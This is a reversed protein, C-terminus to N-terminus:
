LASIREGLRKAEADAEAHLEALDLDLVQGNEYVTRGRSVVRLVRAAPDLLHSTPELVAFDADEGLELRGLARGFVSSVISANHLFLLEGVRAPTLTGHSVGTDRAFQAETLMGSLFGDTGLGVKVGEGLLAGVDATGVRNHANSQPCHVLYAGMERILAADGPQLHVGHALLTGPRLLGMVGLRDVVSEYGLKAAHKQDIEAEACHLHFPTEFPLVELVKDLTEESVTFSAHMGFLAAVDEADDYVQLARLNEDLTDDLCDEGNRDTLEIAVAVKLGLRRAEEAIIDLAGEHIEPSSHHDVVTTVGHRLAEVLGLRASVRLSREDLARDLKWWIQELIGLFEAPRKAPWKLRPALASYLHTHANVFGPVVRAGALDVRREVELGEPPSGDGVAAVRGDELLLWANERVENEVAPRTLLCNTYLSSPM